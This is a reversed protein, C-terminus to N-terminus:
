VIMREKSKRSKTSLKYKHSFLLVTGDKCNQATLTFFSNAFFRNSSIDKYKYIEKKLCKDQCEKSWFWYKYLLFDRIYSCHLKYKESTFLSKDYIIAVLKM